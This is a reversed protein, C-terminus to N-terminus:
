LLSCRSTDRFLLLYARTLAPSQWFCWRHRSGSARTAVFCIGKKGEHSIGLGLLGALLPRRAEWSMGEGEAGRHRTVPSVDPSTLRACPQTCTRALCWTGISDIIERGEGM